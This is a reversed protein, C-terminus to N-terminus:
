NLATTAADTSGYRHAKAKTLSVFIGKRTPQKCQQTVAVQDSVGSQCQEASWM